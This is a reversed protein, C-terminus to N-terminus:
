HVVFPATDSSPADNQKETTRFQIWSSSREATRMDICLQYLARHLVESVRAPEAGGIEDCTHAREALLKLLTCIRFPLTRSLVDM